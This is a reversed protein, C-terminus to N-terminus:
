APLIARTRSLLNWKPIGVEASGYPTVVKVSYGRSTDANFEDGPELVLQGLNITKRVLYHRLSKLKGSGFLEVLAADNDILQDIMQEALSM